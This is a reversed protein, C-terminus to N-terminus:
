AAPLNFSVHTGHGERSRVVVDSGHAHLINKAVFLGLGSGDPRMRRANEGRYMRNFILPLEGDSIGIGTDAITIEVRAGVLAASVRVEGGNPTYDIANSLLNAIVASIRDEDARIHPLDPALEAILRINRSDALPQFSKLVKGILLLIDMEAFVYGFKGEEIRSAEVISSVTTSIRVLATRVDSPIEVDELSWLLATLPTRLQHEILTIADRKHVLLMEVRKEANWFNSISASMERALKGLEDSPVSPLPAVNAFSSARAGQFWRLLARLPRIYTRELLVYLGGIALLLAAISTYQGLPSSLTPAVSYMVWGSILTLLAFALPIKLRLPFLMRRKSIKEGREPSSSM